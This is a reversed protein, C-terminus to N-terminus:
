ILRFSGLVAPTEGSRGRRRQLRGWADFAYLGIGNVVGFAAAEQQDQAFHVETERLERFAGLLRASLYGHGAMVVVHGRAGLRDRMAAFAAVAQEADEHSPEVLLVATSCGATRELRSTVPWEDREFVVVALCIAVLILQQGVNCKEVLDRRCHFSITWISSAVTRRRRGMDFAISRSAWM